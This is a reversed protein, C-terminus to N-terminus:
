RSGNCSKNLGLQKLYEVLERATQNRFQAEWLVGETLRTNLQRQCNDLQMRLSQIQKNKEILALCCSERKLFDFM